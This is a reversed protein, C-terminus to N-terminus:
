VGFGGMGVLSLAGFRSPSPNLTQQLINLHEVTENLTREVTYLTLEDGSGFPNDTVGSIKSHHKVLALLISFRAAVAAVVAATQFRLIDSDYVADAGVMAQKYMETTKDALDIAMDLYTDPLKIFPSIHKQITTNSEPSVTERSYAFFDNSLMGITDSLSMTLAPTVVGSKVESSQENFKKIWFLLSDVDAPNLGFSLWNFFLKLAIEPYPTNQADRYQFHPSYDTAFAPVFPTVKTTAMLNLYNTEMKSLMHLISPKTENM